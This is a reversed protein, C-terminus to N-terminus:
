DELQRLVRATLVAAMERRYEASGRFDAPPELLAVKEPEVLVPRGAVGCVALRMRGAEDRRGVVAVIPQDAPTRAVREAAAQGGSRITVATILAGAPLQFGALPITQAGVSSQVTVAAEYVLLGAYLESEPDATATTGGITSMNRFTNPGERHALRRVMEPLRQDEVIAQVRTMAGLVIIGAEADIEVQTLGVAQLDVVDEIGDAMNAILQTGGALAIAGPRQLLALAEAVSEPRHYAKVRPM